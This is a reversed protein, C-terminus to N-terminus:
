FYEYSDFVEKEAEFLSLLERHSYEYISKHKLPEIWSWGSTDVGVSPLFSQLAAPCDEIRLMVDAEFQKFIKTVQGPKHQLYCRLYAGYDEFVDECPHDCLVLKAQFAKELWTKPNCVLSFTIRDRNKRDGFPEEIALRSGVPGRSGAMVLLFWGADCFPPIAADFSDFSLM